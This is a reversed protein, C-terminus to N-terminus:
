GWCWILWRFWRVHHGRLRSCHGSPHPRQFIGPLATPEYWVAWTGTRTRVRGAGRRARTGQSAQLERGHGGGVDERRSRHSVCEQERGSRGAREGRNVGGLSGAARSDRAFSTGGVDRREPLRETQARGRGRCSDGQGRM